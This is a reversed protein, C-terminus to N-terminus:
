DFMANLIKLDAELKSTSDAVDKSIKNKLSQSKALEDVVTQKLDLYTYSPKNALFAMKKQFEDIAKQKRNDHVRDMVGFQYALSRAIFGTRSFIRKILM